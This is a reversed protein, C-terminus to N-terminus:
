VFFGFKMCRDVDHQLLNLGPVSQDCLHRRIHANIQCVKKWRLVVKFNFKDRLSLAKWKHAICSQLLIISLVLIFYNGLYNGISRGQAKFLTALNLYSICAWFNQFIRSFKSLLNILHNNIICIFCIQFIVSFVFKKITILTNKLRIKYKM